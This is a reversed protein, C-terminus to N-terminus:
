GWSKQGRRRMYLEWFPLGDGPQIGMRLLRRTRQEQDEVSRRRQVVKREFEPDVTVGESPDDPISRRLLEILDYARSMRRREQIARGFVIDTSVNAIATDHTLLSSSTTGLVETLEDILLRKSAIDGTAALWAVAPGSDRGYRLDMTVASRVRRFQEAGIETIEEVEARTADEFHPM